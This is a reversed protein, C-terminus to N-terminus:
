AVGEPLKERLPVTRVSRLPEDNVVVVRNRDDGLVYEEFTIERRSVRIVSPLPIREPDLGNARAWKMIEDRHAVFQASHDVHILRDM